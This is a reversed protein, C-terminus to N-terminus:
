GTTPGRRERLGRWAASLAVGVAAGVATFVGIWFWPAGLLSPYFLRAMFIGAAVGTVFGIVGGGAAALLWRRQFLAFGLFLAGVAVFLLGAVQDFQFASVRGTYPLAAPMGFLVLAAGAAWMRGTLYSGPVRPHRSYYVIALGAALILALSVPGFWWAFGVLPIYYNMANEDDLGVMVSGLPAQDEGDWPGHVDGIWPFFVGPVPDGTAIALDADWLKLTVVLATCFVVAAMVAFTIIRVCRRVWELQGSDMRRDGGNWCGTMRV